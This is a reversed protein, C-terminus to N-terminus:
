QTHAQTVSSVLARQGKPQWVSGAKPTLCMPCLEGCGWVGRGGVRLAFLPTGLCMLGAAGVDAITDLGLECMRLHVGASVLVPDAGLAPSGVGTERAALAAAVLAVGPLGRADVRRACQLVVPHRTWVRVPVSVCTCFASTWEWVRGTCGAARSLGCSTGWEVGGRCSMHRSVTRVGSM